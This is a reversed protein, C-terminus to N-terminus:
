HVQFASDVRHELFSAQHDVLSVVGGDFSLNLEPLRSLLHSYVLSDLTVGRSLVVLTPLALRHLLPDRVEFVDNWLPEFVALYRSLLIRNGLKGVARFDLATAKSTSSLTVLLYLGSNHAARGSTFRILGQLSHPRVLGGILLHIESLIRVRGVQSRTSDSGGLQQSVLLAVGELLWNFFLVGDELRPSTHSLSVVIHLRLCSIGCSVIFLLRYRVPM